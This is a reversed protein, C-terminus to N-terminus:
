QRKGEADITSCLLYMGVENIRCELRYLREIEKWDYSRRFSSSDRCFAEVRTLLNRM